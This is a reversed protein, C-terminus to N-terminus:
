LMEQQVAGSVKRQVVLRRVYNVWRKAKMPDALEWIPLDRGHKRKAKAKVTTNTKKFGFHRLDKFSAGIVNPQEFRIDDPIDNATTYGQKLGAEVLYTLARMWELPRKSKLGTFWGPEVAGSGEGTDTPDHSLQTNQRSDQTGHSPGTTDQTTLTQTGHANGGNNM